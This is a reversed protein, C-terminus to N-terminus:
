VRPEFVEWQGPIGKLAVKGRDEFGIGSGACSERVADSVLVQGEEARGCLRQAFHVALGALDHNGMHSVEGVHVGARLGLGLGAISETAARACRIAAETDDFAVLFGDGTCKVEHGGFLQVHRRVRENHQDVLASWREDGLAAAIPTSEVIDTFLMTTTMRDAFPRRTGTVFPEVVDIVEDAHNRLFHQDSGPVLALRADPIADAIYRGFSPPVMRNDEMHIVMTPVAISPLLHRIDLDRNLQFLPVAQNRSTSNLELRTAELDPRLEAWYNMIRGEGWNERYRAEIHALVKDDFGIPYDDAVRLRAWGNCLVLRRVPYRSAYAAAVAAGNHTGFLM